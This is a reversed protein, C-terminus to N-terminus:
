QLLKLCAALDGEGTLIFQPVAEVDDVAIRRMKKVLDNLVVGLEFLLKVQLGLLDKLSQISLLSFHGQLGPHLGRVVGPNCTPAPTRKIAHHGAQRISEVGSEEPKVPAPSIPIRGPLLEPDKSCRNRLVASLSRSNLNVPLGLQGRPM